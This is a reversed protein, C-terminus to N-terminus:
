ITFHNITQENSQDPSDSQVPPTPSAQPILEGDHLKFTGFHPLESISEELSEPEHRPETKVTSEAAVVSQAIEDSVLDLKTLVESTLADIDMAGLSHPRWNFISGGHEDVQALWGCTRVETQAPTIEHLIMTQIVRRRLGPQKSLNSLVHLIRHSENPRLKLVLQYFNAYSRVAKTSEFPVIFLDAPWIASEMIPSIQNPSDIVAFDFRDSQTALMTAFTTYYGETDTMERSLNELGESAPVFWLNNIETVGIVNDFSEKGALAATITGADNIGDGAKLWQTVQAQPDMDVLLVRQGRNALCAALNMAITSKGCGGKANVCVITRM